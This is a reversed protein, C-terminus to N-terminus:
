PPHSSFPHLGMQLSASGKRPLGPPCMDGPPSRLARAQGSVRGPPARQRARSRGSFPLRAGPPGGVSPALCSDNAASPRVDVFCILCPVIEELTDNTPSKKAAMDGTIHELNRRMSAGHSRMGAWPPAGLAGCIGNHTEKTSTLRAWGIPRKRRAMATSGGNSNRLFSCSPTPRKWRAM